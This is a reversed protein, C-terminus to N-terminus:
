VTKWCPRSLTSLLFAPAVIKRVIRKKILSCFRVAESGRGASKRECRLLDCRRDNVFPLSILMIQRSMDWKNGCGHTPSPTGQEWFTGSQLLTIHVPFLIPFPEQSCIDVESLSSKQHFPISVISRKGKNVVPTKDQKYFIEMVETWHIIRWVPVRCPLEETISYKSWHQFNQPQITM